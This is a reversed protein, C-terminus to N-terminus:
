VYIKHFIDFKGERMIEEKQKKESHCGQNSAELFQNKKFFKYTKLFYNLINIKM